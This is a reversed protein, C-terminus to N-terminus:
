IVLFFTLETGQHIATATLAEDELNFFGDNEEFNMPARHNNKWYQEGENRELADWPVVARRRFQNLMDKAEQKTKMTFMTSLLKDLRAMSIFDQSRQLSEIFDCFAEYNYLLTSDRHDNDYDNIEPRYAVLYYAGFADADAKWKAYEASTPEPIKELNPFNPLKGTHVPVSQKSLVYQSHTGQLIFGRGYSYEPTCKRGQGKKNRKRQQGHSPLLEDISDDEENDNYEEVDEPQATYVVHVDESDNINNVYSMGNPINDICKKTKAKMGVTSFYEERNLNRFLYGRYRYFEPLVVQIQTKQRDTGNENIHYITAPGFKNGEDFTFQMAFLEADLQSMGTDTNIRNTQLQMAQNETDNTPAIIIPPTDPVVFGDDSNYGQLDMNSIDDNQVSAQDDNSSKQCYVAYNLAEHVGFLRFRETSMETQLGLISSTAQSDSIEATLDLQNLTRTIFHQATRIVTGTDEATSSGNRSTVHQLAKEFVTLTHALVTKNKAMYSSLYFCAGNSQCTNGLPLACTNSGTCATILPNFNVLYGNSQPLESAVSLYLKDLSDCDMTALIPEVANWHNATLAQELSELVHRKWVQQPQCFEHLRPLDPLAELMPRQLEWAIVRKDPGVITGLMQNDPVGMDDLIEFQVPKNKDNATKQMTNDLTIELKKLLSPATNNRTASPQALRCSHIGMPPKKCTCSHVHIQGIHQVADFCFSKIDNVECNRVCSAAPFGRKPRVSSHLNKCILNYVHNHRPIEACYMSDLAESVAKCVEPFDGAKQLLNPCLGGFGILHMHLSGRAQTENVALVASLHGFVGPETQLFYTTRKKEKEPKVRLLISWLNHILDMYEVSTAVSNSTAGKCRVNYGVPIEIEGQGVVTANTSMANLFVNPDEVVSPFTINNYVRQALRLTKPNNIDDPAITFFVSGPGYHRSMAYIHSAVSATAFSGLPNGEGGVQLIPLMKRLIWRSDKSIPDKIAKHLTQRFEKSLVINAFKEFAHPNGKVKSSLKRANGHRGQQDKLLFGLEKNVAPVNTFQNLLHKMETPNLGAPQGYAKGYIFIFPFAKCLLEDNNKFENIPLSERYTKISGDVDEGIANAVANLLRSTTEGATHAATVFVSEPSGPSAMEAAGARVRAVDDGITADHGVTTNVAIHAQELNRNITTTIEEVESLNPVSLHQYYPNITSLVLLHQYLAFGRATLKASGFTERMLADLMEKNEAHFLFTMSEKLDTPNLVDATAKPADHGFAIMHSVLQNQLYPLNSGQPTTIKLIKRYLRVMAIITQEVVNLEVLGLRENNGFDIGNAISLRPLCSKKIAKSCEQCVFTAENGDEDTHVLEPHLFFTSDLMASEYISRCASVHVERWQNNNINNNTTTTTTNNNTTTNNTNSNNNVNNTNGTPLLLTIEKESLWSTIQEDGLQLVCLSSLPMEVCVQNKIGCCGCSMIPGMANRSIKYEQLMNYRQTDTLMEKKIDAVMETPDQSYHLVGRNLHYLVIATEINDEFKSFDLLETKRLDDISTSFDPIFLGNTISSAARAQARHVRNITNEHQRRAPDQRAKAMQLRNINNDHQRRAADQRVLSRRETNLEKSQQRQESMAKKRQDRRKKSKELITTANEQPSLVVSPPQVMTSPNVTQTENYVLSEEDSDVRRVLANRGALLKTSLTGIMVQKVRGSAKDHPLELSEQAQARAAKKKLRHVRM